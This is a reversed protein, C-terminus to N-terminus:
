HYVPLLHYLARMMLVHQGIDSKISAVVSWCVQEIALHTEMANATSLQLAL